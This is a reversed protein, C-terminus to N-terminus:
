CLIEPEDNSDTHDVICLWESLEMHKTNGVKNYLTVWQTLNIMVDGDNDVAPVRNVNQM